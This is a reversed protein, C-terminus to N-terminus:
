SSSRCNRRPPLSHHASPPLLHHLPPPPPGQLHPLVPLLGLDGDPPAAGSCPLVSCSTSGCPHRRDHSHPDIMSLSSARVKSSGHDFKLAVTPPLEGTCKVRCSGPDGWSVATSTCTCSDSSSASQAPLHSLWGEKM